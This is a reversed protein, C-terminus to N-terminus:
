ESVQVASYTHLSGYVEGKVSRHTMLVAGMYELVDWGPGLAARVAARARARRTQPHDGEGQVQVRVNGYTSTVRSVTNGRDDQVLAYEAYEAPNVTRAHSM